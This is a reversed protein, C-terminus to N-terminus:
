FGNLRSTLLFPGRLHCVPDYSPIKQFTGWLKWYHQDCHNTSLSLKPNRFLKFALNPVSKFSIDLVDKNTESSNKQMPYDVSTRIQWKRFNVEWTFYQTCM